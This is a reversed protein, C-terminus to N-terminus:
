GGQRAWASVRAAVADVTFGLKQAIVEAPASHGFTDIGISLGHRGVYRAWGLTSGAEISVIRRHSSPLVQERYEAPQADFRETSPMSVVRTRLGEAELKKQAGAALHVESGTAVLIVDPSAADGSAEALVYGGRWTDRPSSGAARALPPVKQRTFAFLTPGKACGIAWAWAMASEIADAPRFVTLGPIARLSWLQEIPQHTPGDEGLFVSDHTYDFISRLGMLAALRIAPRMYDSFILFTAGYPIFSGFLALGNVVAGMAHERIGFHLTRGHYKGPLVDGGGKISTLTSPDLDASGGVLSPVLAAARQIAKQNHQRTAGQENELGEALKEPLDSPVDRSWYRDWLAGQEPHRAKWAALGEAWRAKEVKNEEARRAFVARVEDPVLFPQDTPWGYGEKTKRAEEAGLPAGHADHSGAKTPAGVGIVTKCIILSPKEQDARAETLCRAVAEGDMGDCHWVRWGYAEFRKGVDEGFALETHGEITIGNDDYLYVLNGLRLHGALSAAEACVGEMLDGDSCIAYITPQLPRFEADGPFRSEMMRAALGMGVGHAFGQGLPGTTVEVGPAHGYEPHGATKSGWQRFQKLDELSVEYGALHLTSYLLMSAHGASLVFRDRAVWHPDAPDYRLFRTYLVLAMDALAMPTGPHGSKAKEVGDISLTRITDRCKRYLEPSLPTM